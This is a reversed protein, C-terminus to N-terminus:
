REFWTRRRTVAPRPAEAAVGASAIRPGSSLDTFSGSRPPGLVRMLEARHRERSLTRDRARAITFRAEAGLPPGTYPQPAQENAGGGGRVTEGDSDGEASNGNGNGDMDVDRATGVALSSSSPDPELDLRGQGRRWRRMVVSATSARRRLDPVSARRLPRRGAGTEGALWAEQERVSPFRRPAPPPAPPPTSTSANAQSSTMRRRGVLQARSTAAGVGVAAHAHQLDARASTRRLSRPAGAGAASTPTTRSLPPPSPLAANSAQLLDNSAAEWRHAFLAAIRAQARENAARATERQGVSVGATLPPTSFVIPELQPPPPLPDTTFLPETLWSDLEADPDSRVVTPEPPAVPVPPVTLASQPVPVTPVSQAEAPSPTVAPATVAPWETSGSDDDVDMRQGEEGPEPASTTAAPPPTAARQGDLMNAAEMVQRFAALQAEIRVVDPTRSATRTPPTRPRPHGPQPVGARLMHTRWTREYWGPTGEDDLARNPPTNEDNWAAPVTWASTSASASPSPQSTEADKKPPSVAASLFVYHAQGKRPQHVRCPMHLAGLANGCVACGVGEVVCGCGAVDLGLAVRDTEAFYQSELRVVTREAHEPYGVWHAGGRAAHAATHVRAGCGTSTRPTRTQSMPPARDEDLPLPLFPILAPRRADWWDDTAPDTHHEAGCFIATGPASSDPLLRAHVAVAPRRRLRSQTGAALLLTPDDTESETESPSPSLLMPMIPPPPM